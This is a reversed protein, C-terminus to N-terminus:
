QIEKLKNKAVELGDQYVRVVTLGFHLRMRVTSAALSILSSTTVLVLQDLGRKMVPALREIAVKIAAAEYRDAGTLDVLWVKVDKGALQDVM